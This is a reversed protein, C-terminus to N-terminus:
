PRQRITNILHDLDDDTLDARLALRVRATGPPVTPPRIAPALIHHEALHAALALAAANSGCPVPVIAAAPPPADLAAALRRALTHVRRRRAPEDRILDLAADIGATQTPPIGTSYIFPRARNILTDIVLQPATVTGGLSGLAKSATSVTVPIEGPVGQAAALGSGDQGCLGTAHAEDVILTARHREAVELLAPLDAADGDMSFVSDTVIFHHAPKTAPAHSRNARASRRLRQDLAAPNLHPFTRVRAGSHRSADILSAHNLRDHWVTDGPRPLTGLVALNATYGTALILAAEAHKFRALRAELATHRPHTGTVLRSAGAGVGDRRAAGRVADILRPHQSLGLYDNSGLDLLPPAADDPPTSGPTATDSTDVPTLRAGARSLPRLTRRADHREADDLASQLRATLSEPLPSM